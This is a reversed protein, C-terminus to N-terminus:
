CIAFFLKAAQWATCQSNCKDASCYVYSNEEQEHPYSAGKAIPALCDCYCRKCCSWCGSRKTVSSVISSASGEAAAPVSAAQALCFMALFVAMFLLVRKNISINTRAM